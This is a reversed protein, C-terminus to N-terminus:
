EPTIRRNLSRGWPGDFRRSFRGRPSQEWPLPGRPWQGAGPSDGEPRNSGLCHGEPGNGLRRQLVGRHRRWRSHDRDGRLAAARPPPHDDPWPRGERGPRPGPRDRPWPRYGRRAPVLPDRLAAPRRGLVRRRLPRRRALGPGARPAARVAGGSAKGRARTRPEAARAGGRGPAQRRRLRLGEDRRGLHRGRRARRDRVVVVPGGSDGACAKAGGERDITCLHAPPTLLPGFAQGCEEPAVVLQRALLLADSVPSRMEGEKLSRTRGRGYTVTADGPQPPSGAVPLPAVGSVPWSLVVVALDYITAAEQPSADPRPLIERYQPSFSVRTARPLLRAARLSGGGLRMRMRAPDRGAVCHAATLVRDPAVLAGGCSVTGRSSFSLLVERLRRVDGLAEDATVRVAALADAARAPDRALLSQAANAQITM